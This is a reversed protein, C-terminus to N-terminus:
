GDQRRLNSARTHHQGGHPLSHWQLDAASRAHRRVCLVVAAASCWRQIGRADGVGDVHVACRAGLRGASRIRVRGGGEGRRCLPRLAPVQAAASPGVPQLRCARRGDRAAWEFLPPCRIYYSFTTGDKDNASVVRYWWRPFVEDLLDILWATSALNRQSIVVLGLQMVLSGDGLWFGLFRLFGHQTDQRNDWWWGCLRTLGPIALKFAPQCNTGCRVVARNSSHEFQTGKWTHSTAYPHGLVQKVTEFTFSRPVLQGGRWLRGTVMDHDETAVVDMGEGQMRFLRQGPQGAPFCQADTVRKWEMASTTHNFSSVEIVPLAAGNVRAHEFERHIVVLSRWGSRTLAMHDGTLCQIAASGQSSVFSKGPVLVKKKSCAKFVRTVVDYSPGKMSPRM